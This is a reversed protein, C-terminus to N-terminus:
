TFMFIDTNCQGNAVEMAGKRAKYHVLNVCECHISHHNEVNVLYPTEGASIRFAENHVMSKASSLAQFEVSFYCEIFRWLCTIQM